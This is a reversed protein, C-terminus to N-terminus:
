NIKFSKLLRGMSALLRYESFLAAHEATLLAAETSFANNQTNLLDLLSRSGIRFQDQYSQLLQRSVQSQRTLSDRQRRLWIRREWSQRVENEIERHAVSVSMRLEGSRRIQEERAAIDIGGNFINWRAVVEARY